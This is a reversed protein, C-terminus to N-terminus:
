INCYKYVLKLKVMTCASPNSLLDLKMNNLCHDVKAFRRYYNNVQTVQEVMRQGEAPTVDHVQVEVENVLDKMVSTVMDLDGGYSVSQTTVKVLDDAVEEVLKVGKQKKAVKMQLFVYVKCPDNFSAKGVIPLM